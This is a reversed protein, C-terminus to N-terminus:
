PRAPTSLAGAFVTTVRRPDIYKRIAANVSAVTANRVRQEQSAAFAMTHGADLQDAMIQALVSDRTLSVTTQELLGRKADALEQETIGDRVFRSLEEAAAQKVRDLNRPAFSARVTFSSATNIAGVQLRSGASYSIGDRQRIRESLRGRLPNGGYVRNAIALDAFDPSSTTMDMAVRALYIASANEATPVTLTAPASRRYPRDIRVYPEPANWDVFLAELQRKAAEADVDGVLAVQAHSAGYFRRHFERVDEVRVAGIGAISEQQSPTYRPDGAPYPNGHRDMAISAVADPANGLREREAVSGHRVDDFETADLTPARLIDRLMPLFAALHERRTEFQVIARDAQASIRVTAGLAALADALQQRDRGGAGRALTAATLAAVYARGRLSEASGMNLVMVGTVANGRTPRSLVALKMGNAIAFRQTHKEINDPSPDFPPPPPPVPRGRYGEVERALDVPTPMEVRQSQAAPILRGETRNAPRLYQTAVRQVDQVRVADVRDRLLFLLRWDGWAVAESLQMTLTDPNKFLTEIANRAEVRVRELEKETIPHSALGEIQGVLAARAPEISQGKPIEALFLVTGPDHMADISASASTAVRTEVLSRYLRGGSPGAMVQLLMWLPVADPHAAQPVHYMEGLLQTDGARRLTVLREGEQAPEVTVAPLPTREPRPIPGFYTSITELVWTPDFKGGILLVANDPQYYRRYFARLMPISVREVDQRTGINAKGYPHWEYATANLAQYLVRDPRTQGIEMENLVVPMESRLDNAEIRSNVMRDAELSLLWELNDESSPFTAFYNTRDPATTGNALMGRRAFEERLATATWRATGKFQMHELLHAMGAEGRGEDRSGVLYTINVTTRPVADDPALLVRLGNPLRYESVGEVTTVFTYAATASAPASASASTSPPPPAALSPGAAGLALVCASLLSIARCM